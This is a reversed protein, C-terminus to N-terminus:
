GTRSALITGMFPLRKVAATQKEPSSGLVRSIWDKAAAWQASNPRTAWYLEVALNRQVGVVGL